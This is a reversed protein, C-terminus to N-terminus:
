LLLLQGVISITSGCAAGGLAGPIVGAGTAAAAIAGSFGGLVDHGAVMRWNIRGMARFGDTALPEVL